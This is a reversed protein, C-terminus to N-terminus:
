AVYYYDYLVTSNDNAEVLVDWKQGQLPTVRQRIEGRTALVFNMTTLFPAVSDDSGYLRFTITLDGVFDLKILRAGQTVRTGVDPAYRKSQWVWGDDEGDQSITLWGQADRHYLLLEDVNEKKILYKDSGRMEAYEVEETSTVVASNKVRASVERLSQLNYEYIKQGYEGTDYGADTSRSMLMLVGNMDILSNAEVFINRVADVRVFPSQESGNGTVHFIGSTTAFVTTFQGGVVTPDRVQAIDTIDGTFSFSNDRQWGWWDGLRSYLVLDERDAPVLWLRNDKEFLKVFQQSPNGVAINLDYFAEDDESQMIILPVISSAQLTDIFVAGGVLDTAVRIFSEDDPGRRFLWMEDTNNPLPPFTIEASLPGGEILEGSADLNAVIYSVVESPLGEVDVDPDLGSSKVNVITYVYDGDPLSSKTVTTSATDGVVYPGSVGGSQTAETPMNVQIQHRLTQYSGGDLAVGEQRWDADTSFMWRFTVAGPTADDIELIFTEVDSGNYTGNPNLRWAIEPIDISGTTPTITLTNTPIITPITGKPPFANANVAGTNDPDNNVYEWDGVGRNKEFQLRGSELRFARGFLIVPTDVGTWDKPGSGPVIYNSTINTGLAMQDADLSDAITAETPDLDVADQNDNLFGFPFKIDEVNPPM